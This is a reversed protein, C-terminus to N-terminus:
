IMIQERIYVPFRLFQTHIRYIRYYEPHSALFEMFEIWLRKYDGIIRDSPTETKMLLLLLELSSEMDEIKQSLNKIEQKM